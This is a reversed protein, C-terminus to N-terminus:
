DKRMPKTPVDTEKVTQEPGSENLFHSQFDSYEGGEHGSASQCSPPSLRHLGDLTVWQQSRLSLM